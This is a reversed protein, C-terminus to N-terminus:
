LRRRAIPERRCPFFGGVRWDAGTAGPLELLFTEPEQFCTGAGARKDTHFWCRSQVSEFSPRGPRTPQAPAARSPWQSKTAPGVRSQRLPWNEAFQRQADPLTVRPCYFHGSRPSPRRRARWNLPNFPNRPELDTMRLRSGQHGLRALENGGKAGASEQLNMRCGTSNKMGHRFCGGSTAARSVLPLAGVAGKRGSRGRSAQRKFHAPYDPLFLDVQIMDTASM